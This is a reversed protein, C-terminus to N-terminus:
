MPVTTTGMVTGSIYNPHGHSNHMHHHQCNAMNNLSEKTIDKMPHHPPPANNNFHNPDRNQEDASISYSRYSLFEQPMQQRKAQEIRRKKIKLWGLVAILVIFVFIGLCCGVILGLRRTVLSHFFGNSSLSDMEMISSLAYLTRVQTCKSTMSETLLGKHSEQYIENHANAMSTILNNGVSNTSNFDNQYTLWNGVGLVCILYLTNSALAILRASNSSRNLYMTRPQQRFPVFNSQILQSANELKLPFSVDDPVELSQFIVEYGSLGSHERSQWSVLVSYPQIDQIALKMILPADCFDQPEMKLFDKGKLTEPQNCNLQSKGTIEDLLNWKLHDHLWEWLEQSECSCHIPNGQTHSSFASIFQARFSKILVWLNGNLKLKADRILTSFM